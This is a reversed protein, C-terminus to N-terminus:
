TLWNKITNKVRLFLYYKLYNGTLILAQSIALGVNGSYTDAHIRINARM